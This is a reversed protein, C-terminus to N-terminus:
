PRILPLGIEEDMARRLEAGLERVFVELTASVHAEFLHGGHATGDRMGLTVHAHVRPGEEAVSVNGLLSLVEADGYRLRKYDRAAIEYVGVEADSVAGIGSITAAVLNEDRAFAVLTQM